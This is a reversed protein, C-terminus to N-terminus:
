ADVTTGDNGVIWVTIGRPDRNFKVTCDLAKAHTEITQEVSELSAEIDLSAENCAQECLKAHRRAQVAIRRTTLGIAYATATPNTRALMCVLAYNM